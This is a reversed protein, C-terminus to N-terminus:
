TIALRLRHIRAQLAERADDRIEPHAVATEFFAIAREAQRNGECFLGSYIAQLLQWQPAPLPSEARRLADLAGEVDVSRSRIFAVEVRLDADKMLLAARSCLREAAVGAGIFSLCRAVAVVGFHLAAQSLARVWKM